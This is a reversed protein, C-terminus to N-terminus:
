VVIRPHAEDAPRPMWRLPPLGEAKWRALSHCSLTPSTRHNLLDHFSSVKSLIVSQGPRLQGAYPYLIATQSSSPGDQSPQSSATISRETACVLKSQLRGM